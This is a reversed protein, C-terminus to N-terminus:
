KDPDPKCVLESRIGQLSNDRKLRSTRFLGLLAVKLDEFASKIEPSLLNVTVAFFEPKAFVNEAPYLTYVSHIFSTHQQQSMM